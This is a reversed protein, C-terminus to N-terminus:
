APPGGCCDDVSTSVFAHRSPFPHCVFSSIRDLAADWELEAVTRLGGEVIRRQLEQDHLVELIREALRTTTSDALAANEGDRLFWQTYRNFNSVTACGSAMFEFPQYSPHATYMFVLGVDSSRYLAALEELSQVVGRNNVIGKIGYDSERFDAGVSVIEITDGLTNKVLSLAGLGLEFANRDNRPRGYFVLRKTGNRTRRRPDPYFMSKDVGPVFYQVWPNYQRYLEGVGPTNAIGNFGFRYTQEILAYTSGAAYFAPEFDQVFYFKGKCKNYRVLLYASTWLTCFAADSPPLNEMEHGSSVSILQFKLNRFANRIMTEVDRLAIQKGGHLVITNSTGFRRSFNDAVRFITYIGGRYIHDFSPLIWLARNLEQHPDSRFREIVAWNARLIDSSVDYSFFQTNKALQSRNLPRNKDISQTPQRSASSAPQM